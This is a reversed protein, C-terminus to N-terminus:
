LTVGDKFISIENFGNIENKAYTEGNIVKIIYDLFAKFVSNMDEGDVIRGANFDIWKSKKISLATNTSIKITPVYTGFPTGRGTTFLILQSGISAINTCAMM